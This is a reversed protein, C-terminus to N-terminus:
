KVAKKTPKRKVQKQSERGELWGSAFAELLRHELYIAQMSKRNSLLTNFTFMGAHHTKFRAVARAYETM